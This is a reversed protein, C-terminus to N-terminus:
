VFTRVMLDGGRSEQVIATHGFAGRDTYGDVILVVVLRPTNPNM